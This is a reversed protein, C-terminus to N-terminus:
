PLFNKKMHLLFKASLVEAVPYRAITASCLSYVYLQKRGSVLFAVYTEFVVVSADADPDSEIQLLEQKVQLSVTSHLYLFIKNEVRQLSVLGDRTVLSAIDLLHGTAKDTRLHNLKSDYIHMKNHVTTLILNDNFTCVISKIDKILVKELVLELNEPKFPKIAFHPTDLFLDTYCIIYTIYNICQM